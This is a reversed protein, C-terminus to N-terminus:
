LQKNRKAFPNNPWRGRDSLHPRWSSDGQMGALRGYEICAMLFAGVGKLDNDVVPESMYYDFTGSRKQAGGLGGVSCIHTLTLSGDPDVRVLHRILGEYGKRAVTEYQRGLYGKRVGKAMAYVFMSSASAELYNKGRKGQDVVQYWLGTERDQFASVGKALRQLVKILEARRPHRAPIFDLVDVIAMSYWGMARGWFSKSRGTQPDAWEQARSEDWGHFLLGTRSDRTHREIWVIQNAVEAFGEPRDFLLAFRALFPSSMYIGDLWMQYPYIQKHWFGGEQTRPQSQLQKMLLFAANKYKQDGTKQYLMLLLKGCNINDLNYDELKYTSITGDTELYSDIVAKIYDFYSTDGTQEWLAQLGKLFVGTEYTWKAKPDKGYFLSDGRRQMESAALRVAWARGDDHTVKPSLSSLLM